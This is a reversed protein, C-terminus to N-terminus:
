TGRRLTATSPTASAPLAITAVVNGNAVVNVMIPKDSPAAYTLAVALLGGAALAAGLLHIPKM